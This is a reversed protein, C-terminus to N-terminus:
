PTTTTFQTGSWSYRLSRTAGWPLLLPEISGGPKDEPWPYTKETWGKAVGPRVDIDFSKGGKAPVFQVLGQVRKQGQERGTEIAFVRGLAGGKVQYVFLADVDVKEGSQPAVRRTGRVIIEAAGDGTLDRATMEGVDKDDAFQTLSIRAYNKGGAFGPGFVLVDRGVLVIREPRADGDVNVELDFRPKTGAPVGQEKYYADLIQKGLDGGKKVEPTPVDRPLPDQKATAGAGASPATPATPAQAVESAMAFKGKELKFTRSKVPGWPLLIPEADSPRPEKFTAADWGAGPEVAVEIEKPSVRVANSLRRKGDSVSIEHAFVTQPEDGTALTWVEVFEHVVGANTLRRRVVLDDKGHGTVDRTEVAALEGAVARWFFQHGGRYTPGCITFFKGFVSIREKREDGAIDAFVDIRPPTGALNQPGLLGEVVAQEPATPLPALESPKDAEGPGTGLVGHVGGADADHYRLAARLGVRMVRAEAFSSWPIQAEFTYGGKVDAEVIKAGTVDQGKSPGSKWKVAGPGEGAKGAWLGIEYGKLAGRTQPFAIVMSVHDDKDGHAATRALKPDSVEGAVYLRADDYQVSVSLGLGDTKGSLTEKAAVRDHWEKLIGDLKVPAKRDVEDARLAGTMAAEIGTAGEERNGAGGLAALGGQAAALDGISEKHGDGGDGDASRAGRGGGAGGGCAAAGAVLAGLYIYVARNM